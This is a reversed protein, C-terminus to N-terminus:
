YSAKSGENNRKLRITFFFDVLLEIKYIVERCCCKNNQFGKKLKIAKHNILIGKIERGSVLSINLSLIKSQDMLPTDYNKCNKFFFM